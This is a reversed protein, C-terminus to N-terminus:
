APTVTADTHWQTWLAAIFVDAHGVCLYAVPAIGAPVPPIMRVFLDAPLDCGPAGCPHIM